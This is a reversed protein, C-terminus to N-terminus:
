VENEKISAWFGKKKEKTKEPRPKTDPMDVVEAKETKKPESEQYFAEQPAQLQLIQEQLRATLIDHRKQAELFENIQKDKARLQENQKSLQDNLVDVVKEFGVMVPQAPPQMGEQAPPQTPSHVTTPQEKNDKQTDKQSGETSENKKEAYRKLVEAKSLKYYFQDNQTPVKLLTNAHDPLKRLDKVLRRFTSKSKGTLLMAEIITLFENENEHNM